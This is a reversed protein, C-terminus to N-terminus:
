KVVWCGPLRTLDDIFWMRSYQCQIVKVDCNHSLGGDGSVEIMGTSEQLRNGWKKQLFHRNKAWNNSLANYFELQFRECSYGLSQHSEMESLILSTKVITQLSGM